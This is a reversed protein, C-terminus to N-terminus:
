FISEADKNKLPIMLLICISLKCFNNHFPMTVHRTCKFYLIFHKLIKTDLNALQSTQTRKEQQFIFQLINTSKFFQNEEFNIQQVIIRPRLYNIPNFKSIVNEFYIMKSKVFAYTCYVFYTLIKLFFTTCYIIQTFITARCQETPLDKQSQEKYLFFLLTCM